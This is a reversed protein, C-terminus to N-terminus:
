DKSIKINGLYFKDNDGHNGGATFSVATFVLDAPMAKQYDAIKNDDIFVQLTEGTRKVSVRVRNHKKNNSFGTAPLWKTGTLYGAPFKTEIEAEGNRGDFGPRLKVRVYSDPYRASKDSTLLLTMGKAGWTFKEAAVLDYSLTFDRPLPTTLRAPILTHMDGAVVAWNGPLGDLKTVLGAVSGSWGIPKQGPATTSFDDFFHVGPDAANSKAAGSAESTVVTAAAHPSRLPKYPQSKVKAPDFFFNYVYDFDFNNLIADHLHKGRAENPDADWSVLIWQPNDSKALEATAPDIKYVPYRRASSRQEDFIDPNNELLATRQLSPVEATETLRNQYKRRASELVDRRKGYKADADALASTRANGVPWSKTAYAKDEAYKREVAEALKDLYEAKTITVFPLKNDKCLLVNSSNAYQSSYTQLNFYTIYRKLVPHGSLDYRRRFRAEEDESGGVIPEGFLPMLFYFQTPTNLLSLPEGFGLGNAVVRWKYHADTLPVLKRNADYMLELYSKALAGYSQPLAADAQNYLGLKGSAIVRMEGLAGKPMYSAQMWTALADAIALQAPSYVKDDVKQPKRAAPATYPRMWGIVTDAIASAPVAQRTQAFTAGHALIVAALVYKGNRM